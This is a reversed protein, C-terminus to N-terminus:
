KLFSNAVKQANLFSLLAFIQVYIGAKSDHGLIQNNKGKTKYL